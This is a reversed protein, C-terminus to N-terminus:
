PNRSGLGMIDSTERGRRVMIHKSILDPDHLIQKECEECKYYEKRSVFDLPNCRMGRKDHKKTLHLRMTHWRNFKSPCLNCSFKCLAPYPSEKETDKIPKNTTSKRTNNVSTTAGQRRRQQRKKIEHYEKMSIKHQIRAHM